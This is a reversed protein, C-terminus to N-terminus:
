EHGAMSESLNCDYFLSVDLSRRTCMSWPAPIVLKLIETITCDYGQVGRKM